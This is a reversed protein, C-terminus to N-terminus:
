NEEQSLNLTQRIKLMPRLGDSPDARWDRDSLEHLNPKKEGNGDTAKVINVKAILDKIQEPLWCHGDSEYEYGKGDIDMHFEIVSAGWKLISNLIVVDSVTHDSWGVDCGTHKRITEIAALNASGIPTPYASSCHLIQPHKCGNAKLVQVAHDIENLTAMGSSIIVPKGTQACKALLDDWLLEYSAIKFFSVYEDLVDVADLYFPTCSFSIQKEQCRKYIAPLFEIPLEWNQRDRHTSSRALVEPAFLEDVKFLQFKISDCGIDKAIDIFQICRDLSQNHNSSVEAIFNIL